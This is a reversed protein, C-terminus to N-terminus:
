VFAAFKEYYRAAQKDVGKQLTEDINQVSM